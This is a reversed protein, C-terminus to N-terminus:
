FPLLSLSVFFLTFLLSVQKCVIMTTMHYSFGQSFTHQQTKFFIKKWISFHTLATRQERDQFFYFMKIYNQSFDRSINLLSIILTIQTFYLLCCNYLCLPISLSSQSSEVCRMGKRSTERKRMSNWNEINKKDFKWEWWCCRFILSINM